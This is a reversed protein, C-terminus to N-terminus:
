SGGKESHKQNFIFFQTQFTKDKFLMISHIHSKIKSAIYEKKLILIKM